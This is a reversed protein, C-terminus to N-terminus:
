QVYGLSRLRELTAPDLSTEARRMSVQRLGDLTGDLYARLAALTDPLTAALDWREGPDAALDYLLHEPAAARGRRILKWRDLRLAYLNPPLECLVPQRRPPAPEGRVEPVPRGQHLPPVELGLLPFLTAWVDLVSVPRTVVRGGPVGGPPRYALLCAGLEEFISHGHFWGGHDGFEEGHDSLLVLHARDLVGRARLADILRGVERDVTRIEGDYRALM